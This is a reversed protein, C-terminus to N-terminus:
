GAAIFYDQLENPRIKLVNALVLLVLTRSAIQRPINATKSFEDVTIAPHSELYRMLAREKEGYTFRINEKSVNEKSFRGCKKAQRYAETPWVCM